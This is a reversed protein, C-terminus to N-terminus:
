TKLWESVSEKLERSPLLRDNHGYERYSENDSCKLVIDRMDPIVSYIFTDEKEKKRAQEIGSYPKGDLFARALFTARSKPRIIDRRKHVAYDIAALIDSDKQQRERLYKAKEKLAKTEKRLTRSEETLRKSENKLNM